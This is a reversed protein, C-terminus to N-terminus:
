PPLLDNKDDQRFFGDTFTGKTKSEHNHDHSQLQTEEIKVYCVLKRPFM